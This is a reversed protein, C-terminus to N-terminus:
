NFILDLIRELLDTRATTTLKLYGDILRELNEKFNLYEQQTHTLYEEVIEDM